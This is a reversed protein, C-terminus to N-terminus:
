RKLVKQQDENNPMLFAALFYVLMATGGSAAFAIIFIIRLLSSPISSSEAIGGCVGMFVRDTMSKSLRRNPSLKFSDLFGGISNTTSAQSRAETKTKVTIPPLDLKRKKFLRGLVKFGGVAMSIVGAIILIPTFEALGMDLASALFAGTGAVAAIIGTTQLLDIDKQDQQNPTVEMVSFEDLLPMSSAEHFQDFQYKQENEVLM